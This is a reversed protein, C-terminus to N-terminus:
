YQKFFLEADSQCINSNHATLSVEREYVAKIIDYYQM